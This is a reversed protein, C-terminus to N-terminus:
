NRTYTKRNSVNNLWEQQLAYEDFVPRYYRKHVNFYEIFPTDIHRKEKKILTKSHVYKEFADRGIHLDKIIDKRFAWHTYGEQNYHVGNYFETASKYGDSLYKNTRDVSYYTRVETTDVDNQGTFCIGNELYRQMTKRDIDFIEVLDMQKLVCDLSFRKNLAKTTAQIKLPHIGNINKLVYYSQLDEKRKKELGYIDKLQMLGTTPSSSIFCNYFHNLASKKNNIGSQKYIIHFGVNRINEIKEERIIKAIIEKLGYYRSPNIRKLEFDQYYCLATFYLTYENLDQLCVSKIFYNQKNHFLYLNVEPKEDCNTKGYIFNFIDSFYNIVYWVIVRDLMYEKHSLESYKAAVPVIEECLLRWSKNPDLKYDAPFREKCIRDIANTYTTITSPNDSKTKETLRQELLWKKFKEKMENM